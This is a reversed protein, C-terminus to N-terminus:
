RRAARAPAPGSRQDTIPPMWPLSGSPMAAARATRAPSAASGAATRPSTIREDAVLARDGGAPARDATVEVAHPGGLLEGAPARRRRARAASVWSSTSSAARDVGRDRAGAAGDVDEIQVGGGRGAEREGDDARGGLVAPEGLGERQGADDAELLREGADEGAV